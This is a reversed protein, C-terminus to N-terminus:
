WSLILLGSDYCEVLKTSINNLFYIVALLVRHFFFGFLSLVVACGYRVQRVNIGDLM